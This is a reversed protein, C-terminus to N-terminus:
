QLEIKIPLIIKVNVPIGSCKGPKWDPMMNLVRFTENDFEEQLGRLIKIKTMKGTSNIIFEVYITGWADIETPYNFHTMFFSLMKSNGGPYQPMSDVVTYYEIQTVPDIFPVCKLSDVIGSQSYTRISCAVIIIILYIHKKRKIKM